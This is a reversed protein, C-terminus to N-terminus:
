PASAGPPVISRRKRAVSPLVSAAPVMTVLVPTTVHFGGGCVALALTENATPPIRPAGLRTNVLDPGGVILGPCHPCNTKLTWFLPDLSARFTVSSSSSGLPEVPSMHLM